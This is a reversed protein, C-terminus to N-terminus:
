RGFLNINVMRGSIIVFYNGSVIIKAIKNDKGESFGGNSKVLGPVRRFIIRLPSM